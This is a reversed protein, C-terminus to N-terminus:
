YRDNKGINEKAAVHKAPDSSKDSSPLDPRIGIMISSYVIVVMLHCLMEESYRGPECPPATATLARDPTSRTAPTAKVAMSDSNLVITAWLSAADRYSTEPESVDFLRVM